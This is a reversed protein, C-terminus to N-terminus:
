SEYISNMDWKELSLIKASGGVARLAIGSSDEREPYVRQAICAKGNVFVELMGRDLFVDLKV